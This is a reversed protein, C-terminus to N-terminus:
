QNYMEKNYFNLIKMVMEYAPGAPSEANLEIACRYNNLAQQWNGLKCYAKGRLYYAEEKLDFDSHLLEDLKQLSQEINGQNILKKICNLQEM